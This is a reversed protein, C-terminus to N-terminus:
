HAPPPEIAGQCSGHESCALVRDIQQREHGFREADQGALRSARPVRVTLPNVFADNLKVEFHLHPGTALGTQGLAGITQGLRVRAGPEIGKAIASMHSYTTGVGDGHRIEVHRGYGSHWGAEIVEGDGAAFIPTGVKNAWDIGNHPRTYHLVPHYRSGFGSTLRAEVIPK